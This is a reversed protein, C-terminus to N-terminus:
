FWTLMVMCYFVSLSHWTFCFRSQIAPSLLSDRQSSFELIQTGYSLLGLRLFIMVTVIITPAQIPSCQSLSEPWPWVKQHELCAQIGQHAPELLSICQPSLSPGREAGEMSSLCCFGTLCGGWLADERWSPLTLVTLHNSQCGGLASRCRRKM